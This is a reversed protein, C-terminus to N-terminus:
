TRGDSSPRRRGLFLTVVVLVLVALIGVHYAVDGAQGRSITVTLGYGTGLLAFACAASAILRSARLRALISGAGVAVVVAIVAEPIVAGPFPDHISTGGLPIAIGAHVVSAVAFALATSAVVAGVAVGPPRRTTTLPRATM